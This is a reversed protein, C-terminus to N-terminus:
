VQVYKRYAVEVLVAKMSVVAVTLNLGIELYDQVWHVVVEVLKDVLYVLHPFVKLVM